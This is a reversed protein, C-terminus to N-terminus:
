AFALKRLFCTIALHSRRTLQVGWLTNGASGVFDLRRMEPEILGM